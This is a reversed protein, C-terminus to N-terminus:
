FENKVAQMKKGGIEAVWDGNPDWCINNVEVGAGFSAMPTIPDISKSTHRAAHPKYDNLTDMDWILVQSDDSGSALLNRRPHWQISNVAAKHNHLTTLPQGPYRLDLIIIQSSNAELVAIHDADYHSPALRVLPNSEVGGIKQSSAHANGLATASPEEFVITSHELDRLDFLRVSGDKSTSVFINKEGSIFKVDYVENDHAILQAKTVGSGRNVDWLTCTTDVSCTIILRPDVLNWDFSTLPAMRNFDKTKSNSLCLKERLNGYCKFGGNNNGFGTVSNGTDAEGEYEYIRLCESTTALRDIDFGPKYRMSPDWQLRTVPYRVAASAVKSFQWGTIDTKNNPKGESSVEDFFPIGHVIEIYNKHDERYSSTAVRATGPGSEGFDTWDLGYLPFRSTFCSGMYDERENNSM